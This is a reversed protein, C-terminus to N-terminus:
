NCVAVIEDEREGASGGQRVQWVRAAVSEGEGPEVGRVTLKNDNIFESM